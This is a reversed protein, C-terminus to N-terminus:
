PKHWNWTRTNEFLRYDFGILKTKDITTTDNCKFNLLVVLLTIANTIMRNNIKFTKFFASLKEMEGVSCM